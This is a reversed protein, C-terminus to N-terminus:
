RYRYHSIIFYHSYSSFKASLQGIVAHVGILAEIEGVRVLREDTLFLVVKLNRAVYLLAALRVVDFAGFAGFFDVVEIQVEEAHFRFSRRLHDAHLLRLAVAALFGEM